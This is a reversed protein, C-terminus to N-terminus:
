AAKLKTIKSKSFEDYAELWQVVATTYDNYYELTVAELNIEAAACFTPLNERFIQYKEFVKKGTPITSDRKATSLWNRVHKIAQAVDNSHSSIDFASLDSCFIKYRHQERDLVLAIKRKQKATGLKKAGLFMGLELPMNFRPLDNIEDLETRSIDHIGFMSNRILEEIKIIRAVSGDNEELATRAVFGCDHVAFM